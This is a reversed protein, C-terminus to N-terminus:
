GANRLAPSAIRDALRTRIANEIGAADLGSQALLEERSAHELYSDALGLQLVPM